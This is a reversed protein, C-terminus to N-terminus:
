IDEIKNLFYSAFENVLIKPSKNPLPNEKKSNTLKNVLKIIGKTNKNNEQVQCTICQRKHYKLLRNYVNRKQLSAVPTTGQIKAM